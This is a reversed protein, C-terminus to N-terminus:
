CRWCLCPIWADWELGNGGPKKPDEKIVWGFCLKFAIATFGRRKRLVPKHLFDFIANNKKVFSHGWCSSNNNNNDTRHSHLFLTVAGPVHAGSTDIQMPVNLLAGSYRHCSEFGLNSWRPNVRLEFKECRHYFICLGISWSASHFTGSYRNWGSEGGRGRQIKGSLTVFAAALTEDPRLFRSELPIDQRWSSRRRREEPRKRTILHIFSSSM